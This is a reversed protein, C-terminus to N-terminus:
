PRQARREVVRRDAHRMNREVATEKVDIALKTVNQAVSAVVQQPPTELIQCVAVVELGIQSPRAIAPSNVVKLM